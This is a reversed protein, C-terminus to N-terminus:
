HWDKGCEFCQKALDTRLLKGCDPCPTTSKFIRPLPGLSDIAEAAEKLGCKNIERYHKIAAISGKELILQKLDSESM